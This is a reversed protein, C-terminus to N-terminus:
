SRRQAVLRSWRAAIEIGRVSKPKRWAFLTEPVERRVLITFATGQIAILLRSFNACSTFALRGPLGHEALNGRLKGPRYVLIGGIQTGRHLQCLFQGSLIPRIQISSAKSCKFCNAVKALSFKDRFFNMTSRLLWIALMRPKIIPTDRNSVIVM